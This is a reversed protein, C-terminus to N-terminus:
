HHDSNHGHNLLKPPVKSRSRPVSWAESANQSTLSSNFSAHVHLSLFVSFVSDTASFGFTKQFNNCNCHRQKKCRQHQIRQNKGYGAGHLIVGLDILNRRLKKRSLCVAYGKHQIIGPLFKLICFFHLILHKLIINKYHKSGVKFKCILRNHLYMNISGSFAFSQEMRSRMLHLKLHFAIISNVFSSCDFFFDKKMIVTIDTGTFGNTILKIFFSDIFYRFFPQCIIKLILYRRHDLFFISCCSRQDTNSVSGFVKETQFAKFIIQIHRGINIGM